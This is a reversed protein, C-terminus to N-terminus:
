STTRAGRHTKKQRFFKPRPDTGSITTAPSRLHPETTWFRYYKEIAPVSDELWKRDKTKAYVGLLMETLFPPQSRTLYYTRNANLIKGYERIEYIFNDAMDKALDTEGDRLLGVQIFFSDWGYMENFRGGPVVYPHPLYLLGPEDLKSTDEPLVRLEIKAFNPQSLEQRIQRAIKRIDESRSVYIPWRGDPDAHFKPDVAATALSHNSRTLVSWTKKIYALIPEHQPQQQPQAYCWVAVSLALVFRRFRSSTVM